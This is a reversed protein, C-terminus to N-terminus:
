KESNYEQQHELLQNGSKSKSINENLVIKNITEPSDKFNKLKKEYKGIEKNVLIINSIGQIAQNLYTQHEKDNKNHLDNNLQTKINSTIM